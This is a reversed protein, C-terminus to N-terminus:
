LLSFLLLSSRLLSALPPSAAAILLGLLRALLPPRHLVLGAVKGPEPDLTQLALPDAAVEDLPLLETVLVRGPLKGGVNGGVDGFYLM